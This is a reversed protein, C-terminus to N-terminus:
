LDEGCVLPSHLTTTSTLRTKGELVVRLASVSGVALAASAMQALNMRMWGM